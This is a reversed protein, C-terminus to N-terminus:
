KFFVRVIVVIFLAIYIITSIGLGRRPKDNDFCDQCRGDHVIPEDGTEVHLRYCRGCSDCGSENLIMLGM